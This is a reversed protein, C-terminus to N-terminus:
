INKLDNLKWGGEEYVVIKENELVGLRIRIVRSMSKKEETDLDMELERSIINGLRELKRIYKTRLHKLILIKQFEPDEMFREFASDYGRRFDMLDSQM